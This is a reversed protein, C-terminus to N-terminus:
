GWGILFSTHNLNLRTGASLFNVDMLSVACENVMEPTSQAARNSNPNSNSPVNHM